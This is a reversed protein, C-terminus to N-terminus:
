AASRKRYEEELLQGYPAQNFLNRLLQIDSYPLGDLKYENFVVLEYVHQKTQKGESDKGTIQLHKFVENTLWALGEDTVKHSSKKFVNYIQEKVLDRMQHLTDNDLTAQAFKKNIQNTIHLELLEAFRIHGEV